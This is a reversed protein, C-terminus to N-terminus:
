ASWENVFRKNQQMRVCGKRWSGLDVLGDLNRWWRLELKSPHYTRKVVCSRGLTRATANVSQVALPRLQCSPPRWEDSLLGLSPARGHATGSRFHTVDRRLRNCDHAWSCDSWTPSASVYRCRACGACAQLCADVWVEWITVNDDRDRVAATSNLLFSGSDGRACDGRDGQRTLACYGPVSNSLWDRASPAGLPPVAYASLPLLLPMARALMFSSAPPHATFSCTVLLTHCLVPRAVRTTQRCRSRTCRSPQQPSAHLPPCNCSVNEIGCDLKM